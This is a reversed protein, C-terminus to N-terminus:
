EVCHCSSCGRSAASAWWSWGQKAGTHTCSFAWLIYARRPNSRSYVIGM